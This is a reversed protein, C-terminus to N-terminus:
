NRRGTVEELSVVNDGQEIEEIEIGSEKVNRLLTLTQSDLVCDFELQGGDQLPPSALTRYLKVFAELM